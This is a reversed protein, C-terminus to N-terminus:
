SAKKQQDRTKQSAILDRLYRNRTKGSEAVLQELHADEEPSLSISRYKTTHEGKIRV